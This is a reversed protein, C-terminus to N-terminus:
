YIITTYLLVPTIVYWFPLFGTAMDLQEETKAAKRKSSPSLLGQKSLRPSSPNNQRSLPPPRHSKRSNSSTTTTTTTARSSLFQYKDTSSSTMADQGSTLSSAIEKKSQTVICPQHKDTQRTQPQPPVLSTELLLTTRPPINPYIYLSPTPTSLM